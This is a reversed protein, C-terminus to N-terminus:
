AVPPEEQLVDSPTVIALVRAQAKGDQTVLIARLRVGRHLARLFARRAQEVTANGRMVEFNGGKELPLVDAIRVNGLEICADAHAAVWRAIGDSTLLALSGDALVPVQSYGHKGMFRLADLLPAAPAFSEVAAAFTPILQPPDVIRAVIERLRELATATPEAIVAPPFSRYHVIANRLEAFDRLEDRYRDISADKRAAQEVRETFGRAYRRDTIGKLHDDLENLLRLFEEARPEM